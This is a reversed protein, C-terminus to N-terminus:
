RRHRFSLGGSTVLDSLHPGEFRAGAWRSRAAGASRKSRRAPAVSSPSSGQSAATDFWSRAPAPCSPDSVAGHSGRLCAGPRCRSRHNAHTGGRHAQEAEVVGRCRVRGGPHPKQVHPLPPASGWRREPVQRAARGAPEEIRSRVRPCWPRALFQAMNARAEYRRSWSRSWATVISCRRPGTRRGTDDPQAAIRREQYQHGCGVLKLFLEFLRQDLDKAMVPQAALQYRHVIGINGRASRAVPDTPGTWDAYRDNERVRRQGALGVVMPTCGSLVHARM